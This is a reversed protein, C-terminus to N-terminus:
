SIGPLFLHTDPVYPRVFVLRETTSLLTQSRASTQAGGALDTRVTIKQVHWKVCVVRTPGCKQHGGGDVSTTNQARKTLLRENRRFFLVFRTGFM